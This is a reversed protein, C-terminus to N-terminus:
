RRGRPRGLPRKGGPREVLVRYIVVRDRMCAVHGAWGMRRPEIVRFINPSSCMDYLKESHLRKWERAIGKRKPGM